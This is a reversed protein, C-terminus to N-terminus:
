EAPYLCLYNLEGKFSPVIKTLENSYETKFGAREELVEEKIKLHREPDFLFYGSVRKTGFSDAQVGDFTIKLCQFQTDENAFVTEGSLKYEIGEFEWSDGIKVKKEPLHFSIASLQGYEVNGDSHFKVIAKKEPYSLSLCLNENGANLNKAELMLIKLESIKEGANKVLTATHLERELKAGSSDTYAIRTKQFLASGEEFSFYLLFEKEQNKEKPQITCGLLFIGASLLCFLCFANLVKGM